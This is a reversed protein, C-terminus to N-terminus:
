STHHSSRTDHSWMVMLLPGGYLADPSHQAHSHQHRSASVWKSVCHCEDVALLLPAGRCPGRVGTHGGAGDGGLQTTLRSHLAQLQPTLRALSEPCLFVVAAEGRVARQEASPDPQASGLFVAPVGRKQLAACQDQMLAILPSV